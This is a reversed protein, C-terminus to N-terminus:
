CLFNPEVSAAPFPCGCYAYARRKGDAAYQEVCITLLVECQHARTLLISANPRLQRQADPLKPFIRNEASAPMPMRVDKLFQNHPRHPSLCSLHMWLYRRISWYVLNDKNRHECPSFFLDSYQSKLSLSIHPLYGCLRFSMLDLSASPDDGWNTDSVVLLPGWWFTGM